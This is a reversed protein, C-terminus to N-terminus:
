IDGPRASSDWSQPRRTAANVPQRTREGTRSAAAVGSNPTWGGPLQPLRILFGLTKADARLAQAADYSPIPGRKTGGLQFSCMGVLGALLICGVVLPALSWFM